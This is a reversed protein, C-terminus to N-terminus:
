LGRGTAEAAQSEVGHRGPLGLRRVSTRGVIRGAQDAQRVVCRSGFADYEKKHGAAWRLRVQEVRLIQDGPSM